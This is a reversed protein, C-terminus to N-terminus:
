EAARNKTGPACGSLVSLVAVLLLVQNAIAKVLLGECRCSELTAM